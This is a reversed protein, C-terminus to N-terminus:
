IYKFCIDWVFIIASGPKALLLCEPELRREGHTRWATPKADECGQTTRRPPRDKIVTRQLCLRVEIHSRFPNLFDLKCPATPSEGVM